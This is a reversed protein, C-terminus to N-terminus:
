APSSTMTTSNLRLNDPMGCAMSAFAAFQQQHSSVEGPKRSCSLVLYGFITRVRSSVCRTPQMQSKKLRSLYIMTCLSGHAAARRRSRQHPLPYQRNFLNQHAGRAQFLSLCAKANHLATTVLNWPSKYSTCYMRHSYKDFRM